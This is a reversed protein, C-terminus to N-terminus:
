HKGTYGWLKRKLRGGRNANIDLQAQLRPDEQYSGNAFNTLHNVSDQMTGTMGGNGLIGAQTAYLQDLNPVGANALARTENFSNRIDQNLPALGPLRGSKYAKAAGDLATNWGAELKPFMQNTSTSTKETKGFIDLAM